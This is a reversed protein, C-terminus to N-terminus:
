CDAHRKAFHQEFALESLAEMEPKRSPCDSLTGPARLATMGLSRDEQGSSRPWPSCETGFGIKPFGVAKCIWL